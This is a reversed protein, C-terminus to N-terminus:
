IEWYISDELNLKELELRTKQIIDAERAKECMNFGQWCSARLCKACVIIKEDKQKM